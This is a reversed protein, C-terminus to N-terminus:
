LCVTGTFVPSCTATLTPITILTATPSPEPPATPTVTPSPEPPATPTVTPSPAPPVTPTVTPPPATPTVTPSPVVATDTPPPPAGPVIFRVWFTGDESEVVGFVMGTSNRLKWFSQYAGPETPASLAVSVDVTENPSVNGALPVVASGGLTDGYVFLLAYNTTWTCTGINRVRWVKTFAAGPEMLTGDLITVDDVFSAKDTCDATAITASALPHATTPSITAIVTMTVTPRASPTSTLIHTALLAATQPMATDTAIPVATAVGAASPAIGCAMLILMAWCCSLIVGASSYNKRRM